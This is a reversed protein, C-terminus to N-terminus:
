VITIDSCVISETSDNARSEDKPKTQIVGVAAVTDGVAVSQIASSRNEFCVLKPFHFRGKEDYTKVTIVFGNKKSEDDQAKGFRFIHVVEGVISVRNVDDIPTSGQHNLTADLKSPAISVSHGVITQHFVPSGNRIRKTTEVSAKVLIHPHAHQDVTVEADVKNVLDEGYFAIRPYNVRTSSGNTALIIVMIKKNHMPFYKAVATGVLMVENKSINEKKSM